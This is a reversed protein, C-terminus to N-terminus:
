YHITAVESLELYILINITVILDHNHGFPQRWSGSNAGIATLISNNIIAVHTM